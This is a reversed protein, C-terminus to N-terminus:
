ERCYCTKTREISGIVVNDFVLKDNKLVKIPYSQNLHGWYAISDPIIVLASGEIIWKCSGQFSTDCDNSCCYAYEGFEDFTGGEKFSLRDMLLSFETVDNGDKYPFKCDVKKWTGVIDQRLEDDSQLKYCSSLSSILIVTCFLVVLTRFNMADNM